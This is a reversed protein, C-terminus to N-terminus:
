KDLWGRAVAYKVVDRASELVSDVDVAAGGGAKRGVAVSKRGKKRLAAHHEALVASLMCEVEVLCEYAEREPPPPVPTHPALSTRRAAPRRLGKAKLLKLALYHL